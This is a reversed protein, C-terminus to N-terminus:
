VVETWGFVIPSWTNTATTNEWIKGEFTVRTPNGFVDLLPYADQAGLPQIWDPVVDDPIPAFSRLIGFRDIHWQDTINLTGDANEDALLAHSTREGPEGIRAVSANTAVARSQDLIHQANALNEFTAHIMVLYAM